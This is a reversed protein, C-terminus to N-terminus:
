IEFSYVLFLSIRWMSHDLISDNRLKIYAKCYIHSLILNLIYHRIVPCLNSSPFYQFAFGSAGGDM